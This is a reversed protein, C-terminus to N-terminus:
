IQADMNQFPLDDEAVQPTQKVMSDNWEDRKADMPPSLQGSTNTILERADSREGALEAIAGTAAM